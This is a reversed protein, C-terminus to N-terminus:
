ERGSIWPQYGRGIGLLDSLISFGTERRGAGPGVITVEGLSDTYICLANNVGSVSALFDTSPLDKLSVEAQIGDSTQYVEGVLKWHRNAALALMVKKPSLETIGQCPVDEPALGAQFLVNALIMVKAKADWGLVDADPKTEAYGEAQAKSLAASYTEGQEMLSLIYNTTGNLIGRVRSVTVGELGNELLHFVPTGSMVTGEFRLARKQEEAIRMLRPYALAIPGKNTTVVHKGNELAAIIHTLGPEGTELNTPTAEVLVEAPAEVVFTQSDPFSMESLSQDFEGAAAAKLLREEDLGKEAIVTGFRPDHVATILISIGYKQEIFSRKDALLATFGQGVTGFGALAVRMPQM